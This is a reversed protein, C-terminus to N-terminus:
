QIRGSGHYDSFDPSFRHQHYEEQPHRSLFDSYNFQPSVFIRIEDHMAAEYFTPFDGYVALAIGPLQEEMYKPFFLGAHIDAEGNTVMQIAKDWPVAIFGVKRGTKETWLRWLDPLLGAGNGNADVFNLPPNNKNHVIRLVTSPV